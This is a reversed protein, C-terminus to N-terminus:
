PALRREVNFTLFRSNPLRNPLERVGILIPVTSRNFRVNSRLTTTSLGTRPHFARGDAFDIFRLPLSEFGRERASFEIELRARDVM